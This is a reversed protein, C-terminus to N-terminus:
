AVFSGMIIQLRAARSSYVLLGRLYNLKEM